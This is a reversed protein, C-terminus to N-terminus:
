RSEDVMTFSQGTMVVNYVFFAIVVLLIGRLVGFFFGAGQDLGGLASRQILGALLPTFFSVIILAIAFVAFFAAILSLE